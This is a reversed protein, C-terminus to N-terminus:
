LDLLQKKAEFEEDTIAGQDRLGALKELEDSISFEVPPTDESEYEAEASGKPYGPIKKRNEAIRGWKMLDMWLVGGKDEHMAWVVNHSLSYPDDPNNAYRTFTKTTPDYRNLGGGDTGIWLMGERDQYLASVNDSSLTNPDAPDHRYHNFQENAPDYRNLGGGSTGVWLFDDRDQYLAMVLNASLSYEDAPDHRFIKFEYGDSRNLGDLTGFWM